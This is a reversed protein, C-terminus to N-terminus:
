KLMDMIVKDLYILGTALDVHYPSGPIKRTDKVVEVEVVKPTVKPESSSSYTVDTEKLLTPKSFTDGLKTRPM